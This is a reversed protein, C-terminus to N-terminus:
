RDVAQVLEELSVGRADCDKWEVPAGVYDLVQRECWARSFTHGHADLPASADRVVVVRDAGIIPNDVAPLSVASAAHRIVVTRATARDGVLVQQVVGRTICSQVIPHLEPRLWQHHPAQSHMVGVRLGREAARSWEQAFTAASRNSISGRRGDFVVLVDLEAPPQEVGLLHAPAPFVRHEETGTLRLAGRPSSERWLLHASRYAWRGPHTWGDSLDHGSLSTRRYRMLLLPFGEAILTPPAGFATELRLRFETDAARRVTDFYGIREVVTDRVFMLSPEALHLRAGRPQTFGLEDTVRVAQVINAVTTPAAQLHRVQLELRRPHAWDDSDHMTVYRGRARRMAENRRVYTGGNATARVVTIRPDLAEVTRLIEDFEVPSADDMVLLEWNQWTQAVVSRVATLLEPGPEFCSMIVTVLPDQPSPAVASVECRLRDLPPAADDAELELAELGTAVFLANVSALWQAEDLDPADPRLHPNLLDATAFEWGRTRRHLGAAMEQAMAWEQRAILLSVLPLRDANPKATAAAVALRVLAAVKDDGRGLAAAVQAAGVLADLHQAIIGGALHAGRESSSLALDALGDFALYGDTARYALADLYVPSRTSLGLSTLRDSSFCAAM